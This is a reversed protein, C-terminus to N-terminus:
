FRSAKLRLGTKEHLGFFLNMVHVADGAGGRMRADSVVKIELVDNEPKDLYIVTKQTGEVEVATIESRSLFTFNHDDYIGEYIKEIEELPLTNKIKIKTVSSRLEKPEPNVTLNILCNFSSQREKLIRTVIEKLSAINSTNTLEQPLSINIDIESNLLLFNALPALAILAPVVAPPLIYAVRAGRVLSKRNIESLGDEVGVGPIFDRSLAVVKLEPLNNLQAVIKESLENRENIFLLDLDEINIKDTFYLPSEGILGHHLSSVSRGTLAPAYLNSIVTEPHNILIRIIEGAILTDAGLIGIKVM